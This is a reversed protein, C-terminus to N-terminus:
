LVGLMWVELTQIWEVSLVQRHHKWWNQSHEPRSSGQLNQGLRPMHFTRQMGLFVKRRLFCCKSAMARFLHNAWGPFSKVVRRNSFKNELDFSKQTDFAESVWVHGIQGQCDSPVQYVFLTVTVSIVLELFLKSWTTTIEPWTPWLCGWTSSMHLSFLWVM